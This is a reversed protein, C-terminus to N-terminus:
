AVPFTRLIGDVSDRIVRFHTVGTPVRHHFMADVPVPLVDADTAAAATVDSAGFKVLCRASAVMMLERSAGLTPIPVAASSTASTATRTGAAFNYERTGNGVSDTAVAIAQVPVRGSVLAPIRGLLDAWNLLGRKAAQLRTYNGTGDAPAAAQTTAGQAVDAGDAVTVAGGGGGGPSGSVVEVPLPDTTSVTRGYGDAGVFGIAAGM